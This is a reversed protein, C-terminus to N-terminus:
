SSDAPEKNTPKQSARSRVMASLMGGVAGGVLFGLWMWLLGEITRFILLIFLTSMLFSGVGILLGIVMHNHATRRAVMFGAVMGGVMASFIDAFPSVVKVYAVIFSLVIAVGFGLFTGAL